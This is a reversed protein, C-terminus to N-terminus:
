QAHKNPQVLSAFLQKVNWWFLRTEMETEKERERVKERERESESGSEGESEEALLV